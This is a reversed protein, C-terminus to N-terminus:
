NIKSFSNFYIVKKIEKEMIKNNNSLLIRLDYYKGKFIKQNIFIGEDDPIDLDILKEKNKVIIKNIDYILKDKKKSNFLRLKEKYSYMKLSYNNPVITRLSIFNM